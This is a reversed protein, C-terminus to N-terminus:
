LVISRSEHLHNFVRQILANDTSSKGWLENICDLLLTNAERLKSIVSQLDTLDIHNDNGAVLYLRGEKLYIEGIPFNPNNM